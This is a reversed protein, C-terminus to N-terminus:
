RLSYSQHNIRDLLTNALGVEARKGYQPGFDRVLDVRVMEGQVGAAELVFQRYYEARRTRTIQCDLAEAIRPVMADAEQLAQDDLTVLDLDDSLRHGFYFGALATGGTLFFLPGMSVALFRHLFTAQPATLIHSHLGPGANSLM